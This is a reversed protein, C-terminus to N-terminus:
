KLCTEDRKNRESFRCMNLGFTKDYYENISNFFFINTNYAYVFMLISESNLLIDRYICYIRICFNTYTYVVYAFALKYVYKAM